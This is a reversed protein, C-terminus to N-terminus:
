KSKGAEARDAGGEASVGADSRSGSEALSCPSQSGGVTGAFPRSLNGPYETGGGAEAAGCDVLNEADSELPGVQPELDACGVALLLPVMVIARKM